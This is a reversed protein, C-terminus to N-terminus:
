VVDAGGGGKMLRENYDKSRVPPAIQVTRGMRILATNIEKMAKEGAPDNDLCLYISHIQPHTQIFQVVALKSTGGLSLYVDKYKGGRRMTALSLADIPSECVFLCDRGETNLPITFGYQKDSGAADGKFDGSTSRMCAFRPVHYDDFGVFVCNHKGASEYLVNTALCYQIVRNDIGRSLLYAVAKENDQHAEPLQFVSRQPKGQKKHVASPPPAAGSCLLEIAEQEDMGRVKVLYDLANKGGFGRSHWHWKGNSITLSDHDRTRYENAGHRKLNDPEYAQLYSLLDWKMAQKKSIQM